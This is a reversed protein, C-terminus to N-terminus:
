DSRRMVPGFPHRFRYWIRKGINALPAGRLLTPGNCCEGVAVTAADCAVEVKPQIVVPAPTVVVAPVTVVVRACQGRACQAQVDSCALVVGAMACVCAAMCLLKRRRDM